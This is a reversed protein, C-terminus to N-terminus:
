PSSSTQAIRGSADFHIHDGQRFAHGDITVDRSLKCLKLRGNEHFDTEVGSGFVDATFGARMCPVGDVVSDAALWCTKLKGSPYVATSYDHGGGRCPYGNITADHALFVFRPNGNHGLYIWSKEPANVEGFTTERSVFCSSLRGDAFFWAYGAACPYGQIETPVSLQKRTTTERVPRTTCSAAVSLILCSAALPLLRLPAMGM